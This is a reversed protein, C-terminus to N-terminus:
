DTSDENSKEKLRRYQDFKDKLKEKGKQYIQAGAGHAIGTFVGEVITKVLKM